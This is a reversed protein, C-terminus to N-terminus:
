SRSKLKWTNTGNNTDEFELDSVSPIFALVDQMNVAGLAEILEGSVVTVPLAEEDLGAIHTGTVIVEELVSEANDSDDQPNQAMAPSAIMLLTVATLPWAPTSFRRTSGTNYAKEM